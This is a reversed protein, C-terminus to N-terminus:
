RECDRRVEADCRDTGSSGNATDHGPGGNLTDDGWHGSIVDDGARGEIITSGGNGNTGQLLNPGDTGRITIRSPGPGGHVDAKEFNAATASTSTRGDTQRYAGATLDFHVVGTAGFTTLRDAGDGGNLRSAHLVHDLLLLDDGGGMSVHSFLVRRTILVERGKGGIFSASANGFMEFRMFSSWDALLRGHATLRQTRNDIKSAQM